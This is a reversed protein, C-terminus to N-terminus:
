MRLVYTSQGKRAAEGGEQISEGQNCRSGLARKLRILNIIYRRIAIILKEM